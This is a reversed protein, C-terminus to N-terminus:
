KIQKSKKTRRLSQSVCKLWKVFVFRILKLRAWLPIPLHYFFCHIHFFVFNRPNISEQLTEPWMTQILKTYISFDPGSRYERPLSLLTTFMLRNNFPSFDDIAIDQEAAHQTGWNGMGQEWYLLDLIHYGRVGTKELDEKWNSLENEVFKSKYYGILAALKVVTINDESVLGYGDYANRCVESANGNVNISKIQNIFIAYTMRAKQPVRTGSVSQSLIEMFWGPPDEWSNKVVFDIKLKQFLRQPVQVDQHDLSLVGKRDVYYEVRDSISKTSALLVRTDWGATVALMPSFRQSIAEM